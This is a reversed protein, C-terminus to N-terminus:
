RLLQDVATTDKQRHIEGLLVWMIGPRQDTPHHFLQAVTPARRLQRSAKHGRYQSGKFLLPRDSLVASQIFRSVIVQHSFSCVCVYIWVSEYMTLSVGRAAQTWETYHWVPGECLQHRHQSLEPRGPALTTSNLQSIVSILTNMVVIEEPPWIEREREAYITVLFARFKSVTWTTDAKNILEVMESSAHPLQPRAQTVSVTVLVCFLALPRMRCFLPCDSKSM